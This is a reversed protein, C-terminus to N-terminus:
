IEEAAERGGKVRERKKHSLLPLDRNGRLLRDRGWFAGEFLPPAPPVGQSVMVASAEEEREAEKRKKRVKM